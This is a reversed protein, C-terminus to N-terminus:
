QRDNISDPISARMDSREIFRQIGRRRHTNKNQLNQARNSLKLPADDSLSNNCALNSSNRTSFGM